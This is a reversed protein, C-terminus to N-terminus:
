GVDFVLFEHVLIDAVVSAGKTRAPTCAGGMLAQGHMLSCQSDSSPCAASRNRVIHMIYVRLGIILLSIGRKTVM